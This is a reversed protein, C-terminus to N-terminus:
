RWGEPEQAIAEAQEVLEREADDPEPVDDVDGDPDADGLDVDGVPAPAPQPAPVGVLEALRTRDLGQLTSLVLDGQIATLDRGKEVEHGVINSIATLRKENQGPGTVGLTVFQANIARWTREDIPEPEVAVAPVAEVAAPSAKAPASGRVDDITVRASAPAPEDVDDLDEISAIGMLVDAAIRDVVRSAARAWLMDAPTKSYADNSTWGARKADAMTLTIRVVDDSGKRSGAVTVSEPGYEEDWVRHGRAQALAVKLKAYMGPRGKVVYIQQLSTLPDLGLSLGLLVASTANARATEFAQRQELEGANASIRPKFADPVFSSSILPTVLQEATQAATLWETIVALGPMSGGTVAPLALAAGDPGPQGPQTTQVTM